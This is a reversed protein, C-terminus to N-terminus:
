RYLSSSCSESWTTTPQPKPKPPDAKPAGAGYWWDAYFVGVDTSAFFEFLGQSLDLGGYPCTPCEDQSHTASSRLTLSPAFGPSSTSLPPSHPPLFDVFMSASTTKGNYSITIM